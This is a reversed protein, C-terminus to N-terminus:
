GSPTRLFYSGSPTPNNRGVSFKLQSFGLGLVILNDFFSVYKDNILLYKSINAPM